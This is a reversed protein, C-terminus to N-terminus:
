EKKLKLDLNLVTSSVIELAFDPTRGAKRLLVDEGDDRESRFGDKPLYLDFAAVIAQAAQNESMGKQMPVAVDTPVGEKPTMRFVVSGDADAKGDVKIRWKNSFEIKAGAAIAAPSWGVLGSAAVLTAAALAALNRRQM